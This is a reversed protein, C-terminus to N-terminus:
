SIEPDTEKRAELIIRSLVGGQQTRHQSEAETEAMPLRM